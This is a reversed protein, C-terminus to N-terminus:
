IAKVGDTRWKITATMMVKRFSELDDNPMM